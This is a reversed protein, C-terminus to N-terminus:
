QFSPRANLATAHNKPTATGRRRECAPGPGRMYHREPRYTPAIFERLAIAYTTIRNLLTM